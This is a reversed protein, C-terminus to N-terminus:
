IQFNGQPVYIYFFLLYGQWVHLELDATTDSAPNVLSRTIFLHLTQMFDLM